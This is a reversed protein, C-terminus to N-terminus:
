LYNYCSYYRFSYCSEYGCVFAVVRQAFVADYYYLIESCEEPQERLEASLSFALKEQISEWVRIQHYFIRTDLSIM